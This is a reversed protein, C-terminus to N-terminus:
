AARGANIAFSDITGVPEVSTGPVLERATIVHFDNVFRSLFEFAPRRLDPATILV